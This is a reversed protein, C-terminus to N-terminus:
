YKKCVDQINESYEYRYLSKENMYRKYEQYTQKGFWWQTRKSEMETSESGKDSKEAEKKKRTMREEWGTGEGKRKEGYWRRSIAHFM